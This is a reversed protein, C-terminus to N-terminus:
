SDQKAKQAEEVFWVGMLLGGFNALLHLLANVLQYGLFTVFSDDAGGHLATAICSFLCVVCSIVFVLENGPFEDVNRRAKERFLRARHSCNVMFCFVVLSVSCYLAVRAFFSAHLPLVDDSYAFYIVLLYISALGLIGDTIRSSYRGTKQVRRYIDTLWLVGLACTVVSFHLAIHGSVVPLEKLTWAGVVVAQRSLADVMWEVARAGISWVTAGVYPLTIQGLLLTVVLLAILGGLFLLIVNKPTPHDLCASVRAKLAIRM